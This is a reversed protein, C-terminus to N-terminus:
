GDHPRMAAAQNNPVQSRGLEQNIISVQAQARQAPRQRECHRRWRRCGAALVWVLAGACWVLNGYDRPLTHRSQHSQHLLPVGGVNTGLHTVPLTEALAMAMCITCKRSYSNTDRREKPPAHLGMSEQRLCTSGRSGSRSWAAHRCTKRANLCCAPDRKQSQAARMQAHNHSLQHPFLVASKLNLSTFISASSFRGPRSCRANRPCLSDEATM